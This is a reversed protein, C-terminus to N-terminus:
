EYARTTKIKRLHYLPVISARLQEHIQWQKVMYVNVRPVSRRLRAVSDIM